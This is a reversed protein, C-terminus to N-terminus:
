HQLQEVIQEGNIGEYIAKKESIKVNYTKIGANAIERLFDLFPITMNGIVQLAQDRDFDKSIVLDVQPATKLESHEGKYTAEGTAVDIDYETVGSNSLEDLFEGFSTKGTSRREIIKHLEKETLNDNM